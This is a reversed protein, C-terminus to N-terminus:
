GPAINQHPIRCVKMWLHLMRLRRRRDEEDGTEESYWSGDPHYMVGYKEPNLYMESGLAVQTSTVNSVQKIYRRTRRLFKLTEMFDRRTETPFGVMVNVTVEIGADHMRQIVDDADDIHFHKGMTELVRQSGSELGFALSDCGARSMLRCLEADMRKNITAQGGWKVDLGRDVILESMRRLGGVHGNVLSDAFMFYYKAGTREAEERFPHVAVQHEMEGVIREPSQTRYRKWYVTEYCFSCNLVCGRSAMIPIMYPNPYAEWDLDSFDPYPLSDIKKILPRREGWRPWGRVLRGIGAVEALDGGTDVARVIELLSEEGEGDVVVHPIRTRLALNGERDQAVNPGGFVIVVNEDRRRLEQALQLSSAFSTLYCTFGVVRPGYELIQDAWEGLPLPADNYLSGPQFHFGQDLRDYDLSWQGYSDAGWPDPGGYASGELVQKTELHENYFAINLDFCRAEYGHQELYAKLSAAGLPPLAGWAPCQVLAVRM